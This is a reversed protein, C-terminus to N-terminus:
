WIKLFGRNCPSGLSAIYGANDWIDVSFKICVRVCARVGCARVCATRVCGRVWARMCACLQTQMPSVVFTETEITEWILKAQPVLTWPQDYNKSLIIHGGNPDFITEHRFDTGSWMIKSAVLHGPIEARPSSIDTSCCIDILRHNIIFSNPHISDAKKCEFVTIFIM